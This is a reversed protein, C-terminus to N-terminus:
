EYFAGRQNPKRQSAYSVELSNVSTSIYGPTPHHANGACSAQSDRLSRINIPSTASDDDFSRLLAVNKESLM